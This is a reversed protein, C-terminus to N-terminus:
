PFDTLAIAKRLDSFVEYDMWIEEEVEEFVGQKVEETTTIKIMILSSTSHHEMWVTGVERTTWGSM